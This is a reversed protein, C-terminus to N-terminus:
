YVNEDTLYQKNNRTVMDKINKEIREKVEDSLEEDSVVMKRDIVEGAKVIDIKILLKGDNVEIDKYIFSARHPTEGYPAYVNVLKRKGVFEDNFVDVFGSVRQTSIDDM